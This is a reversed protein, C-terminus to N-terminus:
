SGPTGNTLRAIVWANDPQCSRWLTIAVRDYVHGRVVRSIVSERREAVDSEVSREQGCVIHVYRRHLKNTHMQWMKCSQYRLTAFSDSWSAAAPYTDTGSSMGVIAMPYSRSDLRCGFRVRTHLLGEVLTAIASATSQLLRRRVLPHHAYARLGTLWIDGM